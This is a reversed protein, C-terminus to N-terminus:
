TGEGPRVVIETSEDARIIQVDGGSFTSNRVPTESVFLVRASLSQSNSRLIISQDAERDTTVTITYRENGIHDPFSVYRAIPGSSDSSRVLQDVTQLESSLRQGHFELQQQQAIAAADTVVGLAPIALGAFILLTALSLITGVAEASGRDTGGRIASLRTRM